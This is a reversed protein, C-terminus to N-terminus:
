HHITYWPIGFKGGYLMVKIRDNVQHDRYMRTSIDITNKEKLPGWPELLFEPPSHRGGSRKELIMPSYIQPSSSDLLANLSTITGYAYALLFVYSAATKLYAKPPQFKYEINGFFLAALLLLTFGITLIGLLLYEPINYDKFSRVALGLSSYLVGYYITPKVLYVEADIRVYKRYLKSIVLCIIPILINILTALVYPWPAFVLWVACVGSLFTVVKCIKKATRQGAVTKDYVPGKNKRYKM